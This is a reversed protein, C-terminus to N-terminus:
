ADLVAELQETAPSGAPGDPTQYVRCALGFPEDGSAFPDEGDVLITPSGRFRAAEAEELTTVLRREVTLGRGGAIGDLREAAIKWNPCDDFYLLELKM